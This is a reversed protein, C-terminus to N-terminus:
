GWRWSEVVSRELIDLLIFVEADLYLRGHGRSAFGASSGERGVDVMDDKFGASPSIHDDAWNGPSTTQVGRNGSIKKGDQDSRNHIVPGLGGM